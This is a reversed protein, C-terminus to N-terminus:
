KINIYVVFIINAISSLLIHSTGANKANEYAINAM